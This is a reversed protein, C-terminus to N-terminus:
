RALSLMSGTMTCRGIWNGTLCGKGKEADRMVRRTKRNPIEAEFPLEGQREVKRLFLGIADSVSLGMKKLISEVREKVDPELEVTITANKPM